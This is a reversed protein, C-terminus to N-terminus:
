RWHRADGGQHGDEGGVSSAGAGDQDQEGQGCGECAGGQGGCQSADAAVQGPGGAGDQDGCPDVEDGVPRWGQVAAPRVLSEGAVGARQGRGPAVENLRVGGLYRGNGDDGNQGSEQGRKRRAQCGVWSSLATGPGRGSRRRRVPLCSRQVGDCRKVSCLCSGEVNCRGFPTGRFRGKGTAANVEISDLARSRRAERM